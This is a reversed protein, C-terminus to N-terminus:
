SDLLCRTNNEYLNDLWVSLESIERTISGFGPCESIILPILPSIHIGRWFSSAQAVVSTWERANILRGNRGLYSFSGFLFISGEPLKIIVV